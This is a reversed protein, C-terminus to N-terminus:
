VIELVKILYVRHYFGKLSEFKSGIIIKKKCVTRLINKETNKLCNNKHRKLLNM